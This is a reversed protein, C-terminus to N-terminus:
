LRYQLLRLHKRVKSIIPRISLPIFTQLYLSMKKTRLEHHQIKSLCTRAKKREGSLILNTTVGCNLSDLYLLLDDYNPNNSLWEPSYSAVSKQFPYIEILRLEPIKTLSNQTEYYIVHPKSSYAYAYRLALKGWLDLDEGM